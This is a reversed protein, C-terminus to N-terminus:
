KRADKEKLSVNGRESARTPAKFRGSEDIDYGSKKVEEDFKSSLESHKDTRAELDRKQRELRIEMKAKRERLSDTPKGKSLAIDIRNEIDSIIDESNNVSDQTKDMSNQAANRDRRSKLLQREINKDVVEEAVKGVPTKELGKTEKLHQALRKRIDKPIENSKIVNSIFESETKSKSLLSKVLKTQIERNIADETRLVKEGVNTVTKVIKSMVGLVGAGGESSGKTIATTALKTDNGFKKTFEETIELAAKTEESDLGAKKIDINAQKWDIANGEPHKNKNVIDILEENTKTRSYTDIADDIFSKMKPDTNQEIFSDVNDKMKKWVGIHDGSAKNLESNIEKRYNLAQELTINPNSELKKKLVNVTRESADSRAGLKELINLDDLIASGDYSSKNDKAVTKVMRDFMHSTEKSTEAISKTGITDEIHAVRKKLDVGLARRAEDGADQVGRTLVGRTETGGGYALALAQDERPIGKTINLADSESLGRFKALEKAETELPRVAEKIKRLGKYGGYGALGIGALGVGVKAAPLFDGILDSQEELPADQLSENMIQQNIQLQKETPSSGRGTLVDFFGRQPYPRGYTQIDAYSPVSGEPLTQPLVKPQETSYQEWPKTQTALPTAGQQAYQEWPKM